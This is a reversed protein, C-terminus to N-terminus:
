AQLRLIKRDLVVADRLLYFEEGILLLRDRHAYQQIAAEAHAIVALKFAGFLCGTRQNAGCVIATLGKVKREVILHLERRIEGGISLPDLRGNLM